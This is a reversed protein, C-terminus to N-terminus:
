IIKDVKSDEFKKMKAPTEPHHQHEMKTNKIQSAPLFNVLAM